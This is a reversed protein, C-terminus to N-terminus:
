ERRAARRTSRPGPTPWPSPVPRRGRKIQDSALPGQMLGLPAVRYSADRPGAIGVAGKGGQERRALGPASRRARQAKLTSSARMASCTLSGSSPAMRRCHHRSAIARACPPSASRDGPRRRRPAVSRPTVSKRRACRSRQDIGAQEVDRGPDHGVPARELGIEAIGGARHESKPASHRPPRPAARSGRRRLRPGRRRGSRGSAPRAPGHPPRGRRDGPRHAEDGRFRARLPAPRLLGALAKAGHQGLESVSRPRRMSSVRRWM